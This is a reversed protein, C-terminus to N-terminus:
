DHHNSSPTLYDTFEEKPSDQSGTQVSGLVQPPCLTAVGWCQENQRCRLGWGVVIGLRVGAWM